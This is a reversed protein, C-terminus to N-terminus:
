VSQSRKKEARVRRMYENNKDRIRQRNRERYEASYQKVEDPHTQRYQMQYEANQIKLREAHKAKYDANWIKQKEKYDDTQRYQKIEDAHTQRYENSTRLPICKNVCANNRIFTAEEADLESKSNCAFDKILIIKVNDAGYKEFLVMSKCNTTNKHQNFRKALMQTTAGYYIDGDEYECKPELMYIKGNQYNPM